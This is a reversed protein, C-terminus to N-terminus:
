VDDSGPTGDEFKLVRKRGVDDDDDEEEVKKKQVAPIGVHSRQMHRREGGLGMGLQESDDRSMGRELMIPSELSGDSEEDEFDEEVAVISNDGRLRVGLHPRAPAADKANLRALWWYSSKYASYESVGVKGNAIAQLFDATEPVTFGLDHAYAGLVICNAKKPQERISLRHKPYNHAVKRLAKAQSKEMFHEYEVCEEPSTAAPGVSSLKKDGGIFDFSFGFRKSHDAVARVLSSATYSYLIQGHSLCSYPYHPAPPDSAQRRGVWSQYGCFRIHDQGPLRQQSFITHNVRFGGEALLNARDSSFYRALRNLVSILAAFNENWLPVKKDVITSWDVANSEGWGPQPLSSLKGREADEGKVRDEEIFHAEPTVIALLHDYLSVTGVSVRSADGNGLAYIDGAGVEEIGDSFVLAYDGLKEFGHGQGKKPQFESLSEFPSEFNYNKHKDAHSSLMPHTYMRNLLNIERGNNSKFIEKM